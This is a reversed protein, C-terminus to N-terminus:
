TVVNNYIGVLYFLNLRLEKNENYMKIRGKMKVLVGKGRYDDNNFVLM